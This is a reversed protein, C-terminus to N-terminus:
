IEMGDWFVSIPGDWGVVKVGVRTEPIQIPPTAAQHKCQPLSPIM